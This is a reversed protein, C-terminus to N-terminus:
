DSFDIKSYCEDCIENDLEKGVTLYKGCSLCIKNSM